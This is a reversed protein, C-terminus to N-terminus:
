IAICKALLVTGLIEMAEGLTWVVHCELIRKREAGWVIVMPPDAEVPACDNMMMTEPYAWAGRVEVECEGLEMFTSRRQVSDFTQDEVTKLVSGSPAMSSLAEHMEQDTLM